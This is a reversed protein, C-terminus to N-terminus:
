LWFKNRKILIFKNHIRIKDIVISQIAYVTNNHYIIYYLIIYIYNYNM